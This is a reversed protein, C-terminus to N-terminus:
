YPSLVFGRLYKSTYTDTVHTQPFLFFAERVFSLDFLLPFVEFALYQMMKQIQTSQATCKITTKSEVLTVRERETEAHTNYLPHKNTHTKHVREKQKLKCKCIIIQTHKNADSSSDKRVIKNTNTKQINKFLYLKYCISSNPFNM